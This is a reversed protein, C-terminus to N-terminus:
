FFLRIKSHHVVACLKGEITLQDAGSTPVHVKQGIKGVCEGMMDPEGIAMIIATPSVESTYSETIGTEPNYSDQELVEVLVMGKNPTM